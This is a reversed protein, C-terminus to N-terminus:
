FTVGVKAWLTYGISTANDQAWDVAFGCGMMFPNEWEPITYGIAGHISHKLFCPTAATNPDLMSGSIAGGLSSGGGQTNWDAINFPLSTDYEPYAPAYKGNEWCNVSVSEGEQAYFSYGFDITTNNRHYAFSSHGQIRGAPLVSVDQTLVNAFPFTTHTGSEGALIYYNWALVSSAEWNNLANFGKRYGLTRTEDARFLYTLDLNFLCELSYDAGKLINLSGKIQAGLGWHRCNGVVPPFLYCPSAKNGTPAVIKIAGSVECEEKETFKYGVLLEIDAIGSQSQPGCMRLFDLGEQKNKTATQILRGTFYDCLGGANGKIEDTVSVRLDNEVQQVPINVECFLGNSINNLEQNYSFYLGYSSHKPNLKITGVMDPSTRGSAHYILDSQLDADSTETDFHVWNKFNTGFYKGLGLNNGSMHYFPVFQMTAGWPTKNNPGQKLIRHLSTYKMATYYHPTPLAMFTKNTYDISFLPIFTCISVVLTVIKQVHIIRKMVIEGKSSITAYNYKEIGYNLLFNFFFLPSV